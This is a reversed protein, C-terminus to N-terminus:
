EVLGFYERLSFLFGSIKDTFSLEEETPALIVARDRAIGNIYRIQDSGPKQMGLQNIAYDEIETLNYASEYEILLRARADELEEIKTELQSCQDSIETLAVRDLLSFILLAAAALFGIVSLPNIARRKKPAEPEFVLEDPLVEKEPLGYDYQPYLDPSVPDFAVTGRQHRGKAM